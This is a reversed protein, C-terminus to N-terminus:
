VRANMNRPVTWMPAGGPNERASNAEFCKFYQLKVRLIPRFPLVGLPVTELSCPAQNTLLKLFLVAFKARWPRTKKMTYLGLFTASGHRKTNEIENAKGLSSKQNLNLKERTEQNRTWKYVKATTNSPHGETRNTPQEDPRSIQVINTQKTLEHSTRALVPCLSVWSYKSTFFFM